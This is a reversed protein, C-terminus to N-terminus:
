KMIARKLEARADWSATSNIKASFFDHRSPRDQGPANGAWTQLRGLGGIGIMYCINDTVGFNLYRLPQGGHHPHTFSALAIPPITDIRAAADLIGGTYPASFDGDPGQLDEGCSDIPFM